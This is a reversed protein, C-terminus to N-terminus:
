VVQVNGVAPNLHAKKGKDEAANATKKITATRVPTFHLRLKTKIQM